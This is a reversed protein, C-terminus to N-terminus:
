LYEIIPIEQVVQLYPSLDQQFIHEVLKDLGYELINSSIDLCYEHMTEGFASVLDINNEEFNEMNNMDNM